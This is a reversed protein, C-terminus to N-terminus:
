MPPPDNTIEPAGSVSFLEASTLARKEASSLDFATRRVGCLDRVFAIPQRFFSTLKM